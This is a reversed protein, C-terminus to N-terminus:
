IKRCFQLKKGLKKMQNAINENTPLELLIYFFFFFFHNQNCQTIKYITYNIEKINTIHKLGFLLM